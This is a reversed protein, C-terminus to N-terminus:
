RGDNSNSNIRDAAMEQRWNQAQIVGLADIKAVDIESYRVAIGSSYRADVYAVPRQQLEIISAYASLFRSM